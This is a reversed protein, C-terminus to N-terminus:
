GFACFGCEASPGMGESFYSLNGFRRGLHFDLRASVVLPDGKTVDDLLTRSAFLDIDEGLVRLKAEVGVVIDPGDGRNLALVRFDFEALDTM